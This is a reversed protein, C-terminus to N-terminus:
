DTVLKEARAKIANPKSVPNDRILVALAKQDLSRMTLNWGRDAPSEQGTFNSVGEEIWVREGLLDAKDIAISELALVFRGPGSRDIEYRVTWPAPACSMM